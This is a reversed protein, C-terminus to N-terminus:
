PEGRFQGSSRSRNDGSPCDATVPVTVSFVIKQEKQLFLREDASLIVKRCRCTLRIQGANGEPGHFDDPSFSIVM